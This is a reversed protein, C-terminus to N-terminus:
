LGSNIHHQGVLVTIGHLQMNTQLHNAAGFSFLYKFIKLLRVTLRM